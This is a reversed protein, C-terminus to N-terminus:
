VMNSSYDQKLKGRDGHEEQFYDRLVDHSLDSNLELFSDYFQAVNDGTLIEMLRDPMKYSETIGLLKNFDDNTMTEGIFIGRMEALSHGFTARDM